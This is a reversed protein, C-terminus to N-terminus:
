PAVCSGPSRKVVQIQCKTKRDFRSPKNDLDPSDAYYGDREREDTQQM